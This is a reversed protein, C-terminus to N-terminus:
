LASMGSSRREMDCGSTSPQSKTKPAFRSAATDISNRREMDRERTDRWFHLRVFRGKGKSLLQFRHQAAAKRHIM